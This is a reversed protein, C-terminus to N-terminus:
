SLAVLTAVIREISEDVEAESITLPPAILFSDDSFLFKDMILGNEYARSVFRGAHVERDLIVALFLGKGRIGKILPHKLGERYRKEMKLGHEMLGEEEVVKQAALGAACSLPHGGFTTIHGLPPDFTLQRMIERSSIFAGLPM